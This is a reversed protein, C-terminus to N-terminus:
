TRCFKRLDALSGNFLNLDIYEAEVGYEDGDGQSTYQWIIYDSWPQPVTPAPNDTYHAIWLPYQDWYPNPSGYEAWHGPSTYILPIRGTRAKVAECFIKLYELARAPSESYEEYDAIPPLESDPNYVACYHAAQEEASASWDLYHYCGRLLGAQKAVDWGTFYSSDAFHTGQSAKFIVFRAGAERM